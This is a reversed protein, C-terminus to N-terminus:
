ATPFRSNSPHYAERQQALFQECATQFEASYGEGKLQAAEEALLDISSMEETLSDMVWALGTLRTLTRAYEAPDNRLHAFM